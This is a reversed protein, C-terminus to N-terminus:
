IDHANGLTDKKEGKDRGKGMAKRIQQNLDILVQFGFRHSKHKFYFYLHGLPFSGYQLTLIILCTVQHYKHLTYLAKM